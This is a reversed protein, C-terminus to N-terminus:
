LIVTCCVLEEWDDAIHDRAPDVNSANTRTIKFLYRPNASSVNAAEFPPLPIWNGGNRETGASSSPTRYRADMRPHRRTMALDAACSRMEVAKRSSVPQRNDAGISVTRHADSELFSM